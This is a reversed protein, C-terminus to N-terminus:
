SRASHLNNFSKADRFNCSIAADFFQIEIAPLNVNSKASFFRVGATYYGSSVGEGRGEGTYRARSRYRTIYAQASPERSVNINEM